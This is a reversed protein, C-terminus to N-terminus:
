VKSTEVDPGAGVMEATLLEEPTTNILAAIAEFVLARLGPKLEIDLNLIAAVKKEAEGWQEAASEPLQVGIHVRKEDPTIGYDTRRQGVAAAFEDNSVTIATELFEARDSEKLQTLLYAKGETLQKVKEEPLGTLARAIRLSRQIKAVSATEGFVSLMWEHANMELAAPVSRDLADKVRQGMDWWATTLKQFEARLAETVKKAERPSAATVRVVKGADQEHTESSVATETSTESQGKRAM